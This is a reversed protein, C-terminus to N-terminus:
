LVCKCYIQVLHIMLYLQEDIHLSQKLSTEIYIVIKKAVDWVLPYNSCLTALLGSQNKEMNLNENKKMNEILFRLHMIFRNYYYDNDTFEFDFNSSIIDSIDHIMHTLHYTANMDNSREANVIHLTIFNAEDEDIPYPLRENLTHVAKKALAYEKPYIRKLDWLVSNDFVINDQLRELLCVVHDVITVYIVDSLEVNANEKIAIIADICADITDKDIDILIENFRRILSEDELIFRKEIKEQDISDGAKKHFGISLGKLMIEQGSETKVSVMNNNIVKYIKM